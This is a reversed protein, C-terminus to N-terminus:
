LTIAISVSAKAGTVRAIGPTLSPDAPSAVHRGGADRPSPASRGADTRHAEDLIDLFQKLIRATAGWVVDAASVRYFHVPHTEGNRM